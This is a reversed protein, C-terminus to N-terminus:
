KRERSPVLSTRLPGIAQSVPITRFFPSSSDILSTCNRELFCILKHWTWFALGVAQHDFLEHAKLTDNDKEDFLPLKEAALAKETKTCGVPPSRGAAIRVDAGHSRV